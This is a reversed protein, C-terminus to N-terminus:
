HGVGSPGARRGDLVVPPPGPAGARIWDGITRIQEPPLAPIGMPMGVPGTRRHTKWPEAIKQGFPPAFDRLNEERRLLLREILIPPWGERRALIDARMGDAQLSGRLLGAYTSLDLRRAPYGYAGVNGAGGQRDPMHCHVCSDHLIAEVDQYSVRSPLEARGAKGGSAEGGAGSTGAWARWEPSELAEVAPVDRVEHDASFLFEVIAAADGAALPFQPMKTRPFLAKPKFVWAEATRRDLRRAAFRLDPAEARGQDPPWSGHVPAFRRNGFQHCDYCRNRVFLELGREAGRKGSPGAGERGAPGASENREGTGVSAETGASAGPGSARGPSIPAAGRDTTAADWSRFDDLGQIEALARFYRILTEVQEGSLPVRIMSDELHPRVDYPDALFERIWEPKIRAAVATLDPMYLQHRVRAIGRYMHVSAALVREELDEDGIISRVFLHCGLCTSVPPPEDPDFRHCDDCSYKRTLAKGEAICDELYQRRAAAGREDTAQGRRAIEGLLLRAEFYAEDGASGRVLEALTGAAERFKEQRYLVLALNCAALRKKERDRCSDLFRRWSPEAEAATGLRTLALASKFALEERSAGYPDRQGAEAYARLAGSLDGAGALADGLMEFVAPKGYIDDATAGDTLERLRFAAKGFLRRDMESRALEYLRERRQAAGRAEKLAAEQRRCEELRRVAASALEAIGRLWIEPPRHGVLTGAYGGEADLVVAAPVDTVGWARAVPDDRRFEVFCAATKDNLWRVTAPDSLTSRGMVRCGFEAPHAFYIVAPVNREGASRIASAVDSLWRVKGM